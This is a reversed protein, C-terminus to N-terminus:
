VAIAAPSVQGRQCSLRDAQLKKKRNELAAQDFYWPQVRGAPPIHTLVLSFAESKNQQSAQGIEAACERYSTKWGLYSKSQETFAIDGPVDGIDEAMDDDSRDCDDDKRVDSDPSIINPFTTTFKTAPIGPLDGSKAQIGTCMCPDDRSM